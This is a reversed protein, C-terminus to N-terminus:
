YTFWVKGLHKRQRVLMDDSDCLFQRFRPDVDGGVMGSSKLIGKQPQIAQQQLNDGTLSNLSSFKEEEAVTQSSTQSASSSKPATFKFSGEMTLQPPGALCTSDSNSRRQLLIAHQVQPMALQGEDRTPQDYGTYPSYFIGVKRRQGNTSSEPLDRRRSGVTAFTPQQKKNPTTSTNAATTPGASSHPAIVTTTTASPATSTPGNAGNSTSAAEKALKAITMQTYAHVHRYALNLLVIHVLVKIAFLRCLSFLCLRLAGLTIRTPVLWLIEWQM